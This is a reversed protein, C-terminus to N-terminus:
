KMRRETGPMRCGLVFGLGYFRAAFARVHAAALKENDIGRHWCFLFRTRGAPYEDM